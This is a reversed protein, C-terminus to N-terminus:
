GEAPAEVLLEAGLAAASTKFSQILDDAGYATIVYDGLSMVLMTDPFGCMWHNSQVITQYHNAFSEANKSDELQMVASCFTNTNMMHLMTAAQPKVMATLEEDVLIQYQFSEGYAGIDFSGPGETDHAEDGGAAPFEQDMGSYIADLLTQASEYSSATAETTAATSSSATSSADTKGCGALIGACLAGCLILFNLKKM